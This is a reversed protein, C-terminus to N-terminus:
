KCCSFLLIKIDSGYLFGNKSIWSMMYSLKPFFKAFIIQLNEEPNKFPIKPAFSVRVM